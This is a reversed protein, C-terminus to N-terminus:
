ARAEAGPGLMGRVAMPAATMFWATYRSPHAELDALLAGVEVWAVESVEQPDPTVPGDYRGILVHDYEFETLGNGFSSRYVFSGVEVYELSTAKSAPM